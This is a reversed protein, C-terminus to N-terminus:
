LTALIDPINKRFPFFGKTAHPWANQDLARQKQVLTISHEDLIKYLKRLSTATPGVPAYATVVQQLSNELAWNLVTDPDTTIEFTSPHLAFRNAADQMSDKTFTGLKESIKIPSRKQTALLGIVPPKGEIKSTLHTPHLDEETILLGTVLGPDINQQHPIPRLAPHDPGDLPPANTALGSPNFKGGTYKQINDPRALYTKGKTQLGAVWRWGLTNSAPDGDFLHRMFFDAGLEWPLRLTFIWISAFWMRAHNHLYGTRVLQHAWHDFCDIGITGNCAHEWNQRLGSQTQLDNIAKQLGDCYRHWVEPRQELWGKWYTRWLVEQIFKDASSPAFRNLVAQLVETESLMRHRIYPSLASVNLGNEASLDYNRQGAYISGAKPLFTNLQELAAIRTPPFDLDM